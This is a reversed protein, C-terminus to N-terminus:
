LTVGLREQAVAGHNRVLPLVATSELVTPEAVFVAVGDSEEVIGAGAAGDFRNFLNRRDRRDQLNRWYLRDRGNRGNCRDRSVGPRLDVPAFINRAAVLGFVLNAGVM